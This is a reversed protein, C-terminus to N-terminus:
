IELSVVTKKVGNNKATVPIHHPCVEGCIGCAVCADQNISIM